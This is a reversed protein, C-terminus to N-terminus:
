AVSRARTVNSKITFDAGVANHLSFPITSSKTRASGPFYPLVSALRTVSFFSLFLFSLFALFFSTGCSTEEFERFERPFGTM